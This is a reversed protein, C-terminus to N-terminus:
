RGEVVVPQCAPDTRGQPGSLIRMAFTGSAFLMGNTYKSFELNEIQITLLLITVPIQM